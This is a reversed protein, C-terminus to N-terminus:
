VSKKNVISLYSIAVFFLVNETSKSSLEYIYNKRKKM